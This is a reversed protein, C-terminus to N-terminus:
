TSVHCHISVASLSRQQPRKSDPALFFRGLWRHSSFLPRAPSTSPLVEGVTTAGAALPNLLVPALTDTKSV